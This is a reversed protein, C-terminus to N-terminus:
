LSKKTLRLPVLLKGIVNLGYHNYSPSAFNTNVFGAVFSTKSYSRLPYPSSGTASSCM